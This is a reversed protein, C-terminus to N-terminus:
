DIGRNGSAAAHKASLTTPKGNRGETEKDIKGFWKQELHHKLHMRARYLMVNLNNASIELLDCIEKTALGELERLVFVQALRPPLKSLCEQFTEMFEKQELSQAPDFTWKSPGTTWHGNRDFMEDIADDQLDIDRM